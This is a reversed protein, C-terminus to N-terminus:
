GYIADIAKEPNRARPYRSMFRLIATERPLGERQMSAIFANRIQTKAGAIINSNFVRDPFESAMQDAIGRDSLGEMTLADIRERHEQSLPQRISTVATEKDLGEILVFANAPVIGDKRWKQVMALSTGTQECFISYARKSSGLKTYLTNQFVEFDNKGYTLQPAAVEVPQTSAHRVLLDNERRLREIEDDKSAILDNQREIRSDRMELEQELAAIRILDRSTRQVDNAPVPTSFEGKALQKFYSGLDLGYLSRALRRAGSLAVIQQREDSASDFAMEICRNIKDCDSKKMNIM